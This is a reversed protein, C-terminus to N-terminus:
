GLYREALAAAAVLLLLLVIALPLGTPKGEWLPVTKDLDVPPMEDFTRM